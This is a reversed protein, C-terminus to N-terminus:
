ETDCASSSLLITYILANPNCSGGLPYFFSFFSFLHAVSIGQGWLCVGREYISKIVGCKKNIPRERGARQEQATSANTTRSSPQPWLKQPCSSTTPTSPLETPAHAPFPISRSIDQSLLFSQAQSIRRSREPQLRHGGLACSCTCYYCYPSVTTGCLDHPLASIPICRSSGHLAKVQHRRQVHAGNVTTESETDQTALLIHQVLM